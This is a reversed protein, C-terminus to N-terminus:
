PRPPAARRKTGRPVESDAPLLIESLAGWLMDEQDGDSYVVKFFFGTHLKGPDIDDPVDEGHYCGVM